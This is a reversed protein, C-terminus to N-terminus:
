LKILSYEFKEIDSNYKKIIKSIRKKTFINKSKKIWIKFYKDNIGKRIEIKSPQINLNLFASLRALIEENNNILDEYKINIINRIMKKDENFIEHCKIWHSILEDLSTKSWKKSAISTAIPHRTINIFYSKPFM